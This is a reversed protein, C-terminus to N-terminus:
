VILATSEEVLTWSFQSLLVLLPFFTFKRSAYSRFRLRQYREYDQYTRPSNKGLICAFAAGRRLSNSHRQSAERRPMVHYNFAFLVSPLTHSHLYDAIIQARRGHSRFCDGSGTHIRFSSDRSFGSLSWIAARISFPPYLKHHKKSLSSAHNPRIFYSFYEFCSSSSFFTSSYRTPNTHISDYKRMWLEQARKSTSYLFGKRSFTSCSSM